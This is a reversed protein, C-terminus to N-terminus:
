GREGYKKVNVMVLAINQVSILIVNQRYMGKLQYSLFVCRYFILVTRVNLVIIGLQKEKFIVCLSQVEKRNKSLFIFGISAKVEILRKMLLVTVM